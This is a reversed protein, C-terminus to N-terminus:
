SGEFPVRVEQESVNGDSDELLLYVQKKQKEKQMLQAMVQVGVGMCVGPVNLSTLPKTIPLSGLIKGLGIM